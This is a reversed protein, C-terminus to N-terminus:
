MGLGDVIQVVELENEAHQISRMVKEAERDDSFVLARDGSWGGGTWLQGQSNQIAFIDNTNSKRVEIALLM